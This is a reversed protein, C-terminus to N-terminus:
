KELGRQIAGDVFERLFPLARSRQKAIGIAHSETGWNGDLVRSGPLHDGAEVLTAKQAALVDVQASRLLEIGEAVSRARVIQARELSRSLVSDSTSGALVAIFVGAKDVAELTTVPSGARALYGLGVRLYPQSYDLIKAREPTANGFVVDARAERVADVAEGMREYLVPEFEVRLERALERGLDHGVGHLTGDADKLASSPGGLHLAVRLRGSPALIQRAEASASM